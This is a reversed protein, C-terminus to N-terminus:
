KPTATKAAHPSTYIIEYQSHFNSLISMLAMYVQERTAKDSISISKLEGKALRLVIGENNVEIDPKVAKTSIKWVKALDKAKRLLIHHNSVILLLRGQSKSDFTQHYLYIDDKYKKPNIELLLTAGAAKHRDYVELVKDEGFYRPPRKRQVKKSDWLTATNKIGKTTQTALDIVGVVPKVGVGLVGRGVGKFFGEVGDQSAGKVPETVLGTVGKFVGLGLDRVGFLVGEGVHKPKERVNREQREKMYEADLSLNSVGKAISGTIKSATNFIGYVSNKVLSRAGKTLGIGFEKPSKIIGKAPEHFFDYFGTGLNNVLNLPSGIFELSGAVKYMQTIGQNIYHTMVRNVLDSQTDFPNKLILGNLELPAQDIDALLKTSIGLLMSANVSYKQELGPVGAFSLNAKIPNIHFLEFYLLRSEQASYDIVTTETTNDQSQQSYVSMASTVLMMTRILFEEDINVNMEQILVSFYSFYDIRDHKNSKVLSLHFFERESTSHLVVPFPSVPLQNDIQVSKITAELKQDLNSNSYEINIKDFSIYMVEQPMQDIISIGIGELVLLMEQSVIEIDKIDSSPRSDHRRFLKLVKVPGDFYTEVRIHSGPQPEYKKIKDLKITYTERQSQNASNQSELRVELIHPAAQEDWSYPMSGESNVYEFSKFGKQNIVLKSPTFNDIRYPPLQKNEKTFIVLTTIQHNVISDDLKVQVRALYYTNDPNRIKVAFNDISSISFGGSWNKTQQLTIQLLKTKSADSWHFPIHTEPPLMCAENTDKQRYMLPQDLKNVLVFRPAITILQTRWMKQVPNRNVSLGLEFARTPQGKRSSDLLELFGVIGHNEFSLPQSYESNAIKIMCQGSSIIDSRPLSVMFPEAFEASTEKNYWQIPDGTLNMPLAEYKAQGALVSKKSDAYLIRLGTKNLMWYQCYVFLKRVGLMSMNNEVHITLVKGRDDQLDVTAVKTEMSTRLPLVSSWKLGGGLHITMGINNLDKLQHISVEKGKAVSGSLIVQGNVANIIKYQFQCSLLNEVMLPPRLTIVRQFKHPNFRNTTVGELQVQTSFLFPVQQTKNTCEVFLSSQNNNLNPSATQNAHPGTSQPLGAWKYGQGFPRVKILGHAAYLLPIPLSAQPEVVLKCKELRQKNLNDTISVSAKVELAVDTENRVIVHSRLTIVKSGSRYAVEYIIKSNEDDPNLQLVYFGVKDIPINTVPKFEGQVQFCLKPVKKTQSPTQPRSTDEIAFRQSLNLVSLTHLKLPEEKGQPLENIHEAGKSDL